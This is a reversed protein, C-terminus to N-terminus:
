GASGFTFTHLHSFGAARVFCCCETLLFHAPVSKPLIDTSDETKFLNVPKFQHHLLYGTNGRSSCSGRLCSSHPWPQLCSAEQLRPPSTPLCRHTSPTSGPSTASVCISGQTNKITCLCKETVEHDFMQNSLVMMSFPYTSNVKEIAKKGQIFLTCKYKSLCEKAEIHNKLLELQKKLILCWSSFHLVLKESTTYNLGSLQLM